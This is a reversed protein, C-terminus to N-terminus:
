PPTDHQGDQAPALAMAVPQRPPGKQLDAPQGQAAQRQRLDQPGLLLGPMPRECLATMM